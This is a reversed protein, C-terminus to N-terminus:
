STTSRAPNNPRHRQSASARDAIDAAAVPLGSEADEMFSKFIHAPLTGGTAHKMPANDDNGIWVGCVLDATFGVFWADRYDQTTGTKGASPREDLRAGRGTGSTVTAVMLQTVADANQASMVAGVGGNKRKYLIKGSRTHIATIGYPIVGTGGNAFPAYSATLELPTVDSTGLALSPLAVLPSSIGLRHATAAVVRPGVEDTLQASM